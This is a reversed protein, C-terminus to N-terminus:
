FNEEIFKGINCLGKVGEAKLKQKLLENLKELKAYHMGIEEMNTILPIEITYREMGQSKMAKFVKRKKKLELDSVFYEYGAEKESIIENERVIWKNKLLIQVPIKLQIIYGIVHHPVRVARGSVGVAKIYIKVRYGQVPLETLWMDCFEMKEKNEDNLKSVFGVFRFTQGQKKSSRYTDLEEKAEAKPITKFGKRSALDRLKLGIQVNQPRRLKQGPENESIVSPFGSSVPAPIGSVIDLRSSVDDKIEKVEVDGELRESPDCTSPAITEAYESATGLKGFPGDLEEELKQKDYAVTETGKAQLGRYLRTSKVVDSLSFTDLCIEDDKKYKLTVNGKLLDEETTYNIKGMCIKEDEDVVVVLLKSEEILEALQEILVAHNVERSEIKNANNM